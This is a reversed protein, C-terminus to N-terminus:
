KNEEQLKKLLEQFLKLYEPLKTFLEDALSEKYIHAVDNRDDCIKLWKDEYKILGQNYAERYCAKPSACRVKLKDECYWKVTKWSLETAIVFRLIASDRVMSNKPEALAEELRTVATALQKLIEEPM